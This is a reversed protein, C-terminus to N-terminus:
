LYCLLYVPSTKKPFDMHIRSEAVFSLAQHDVWPSESSGSSSLLQHFMFVGLCVCVWVYQQHSFDQVVQSTHFGIFLPIIMMRPPALNWGDVTHCTKLLLPRSWFQTVSVCNSNKKGFNSFPSEFFRWISTELFLPLVGLISPSFLPELGIFLHIIQPTGNNKSVGM